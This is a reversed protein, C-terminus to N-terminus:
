HGGHYCPMFIMCRAWAAAKIGLANLRSAIDETSALAPPPFIVSHKVTKDNAPSDYAPKMWSTYVLDAWPDHVRSFFLFM